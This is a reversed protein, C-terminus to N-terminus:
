EASCFLINKNKSIIFSDILRLNHTIIKIKKEDLNIFVLYSKKCSKKIKLTLELLDEKKKLPDNLIFLDYKSNNLDFKLINENFIKINNNILKLSDLYIEKDLEVGDIKHNNLSGFFYLVKGYGSGLDCLHNLKKKIVFKKIKKLFYYPCPISDSLFNNNLYKFKNVTNNHKLYFIAESLLIPISYFHYNKFIHFLAKQYKQM